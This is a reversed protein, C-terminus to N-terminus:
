DNGIPTAVAHAIEFEVCVRVVLGIGFLNEIDALATTVAGKHFM